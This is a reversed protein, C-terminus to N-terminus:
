GERQAEVASKLEEIKMHEGIAQPHTNEYAWRADADSSKLMAFRCGYGFGSAWAAFIISVLAVALAFQALSFRFRMAALWTPIGLHLFGGCATARLTTESLTYIM